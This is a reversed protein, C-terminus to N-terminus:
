SRSGMYSNCRVGYDLGIRARLLKQREVKVARASKMGSTGWIGLMVGLKKGYDLFVREDNEDMSVFIDVAELVDCM